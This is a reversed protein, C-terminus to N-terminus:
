AELNWEIRMSRSPVKAEDVRERLEAGIESEEDEWRDMVWGLLFSALQSASTGESKAAEEIRGKLEAGGLEESIDYKVQVRRRDAREKKTLAATNVAAQQQWAVVEPDARLGGVRKKQGMVREM